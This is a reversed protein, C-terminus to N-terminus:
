IASGRFNLCMVFLVTDPGKSLRVLTEIAGSQSLMWARLPAGKLGPEPSYHGAGGTKPTGTKRGRRKATQQSEQDQVEATM